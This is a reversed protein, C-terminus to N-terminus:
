APLFGVDKSLKKTTVDQDEHLAGGVERLATQLGSSSSM